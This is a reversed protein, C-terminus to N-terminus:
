PGSFPFNRPPRTHRIIRAMCERRQPSAKAKLESSVPCRSVGSGGREHSQCFWFRRHWCISQPFDRLDPPDSCPPLAGPFVLFFKSWRALGSLAQGPRNLVILSREGIELLKVSRHLAFDQVVHVLPNRVGFIWAGEAFRKPVAAKSQPSVAHAVVPNNAPQLFRLEDHEDYGYSVAARNVLFLINLLQGNHDGPVTTCRLCVVANGSHIVSVLRMVM